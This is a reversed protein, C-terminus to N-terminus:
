CMPGKGRCPDGEPGYPGDPDIGYSNPEKKGEGDSPRKDGKERKIPTFSEYHDDTYYLEGNKGKVVRQKGRDASGPTKVTYEKYYGPDKEPLKGERNNFEQGDQEHPFPGDTEILDLAKNLESAIKAYNELKEIDIPAPLEGEDILKADYRLTNTPAIRELAREVKEKFERFSRPFLSEKEKRGDVDVYRNPNNRAYVYANLSQPRVPSGSAPDVSAFRGLESAYYRAFMYDLGTEGDREHGTFMKTNYDFEPTIEEGFPFYKHEAEVGGEDDTVLRSSGLHDVHLDLIRYPPGGSSQGLTVLPAALADSTSSLAPSDSSAMLISTAELSEHDLTRCVPYDVLDHPVTDTKDTGPVVRSYLPETSGELRCHAFVLNSKPSEGHANNATVYYIELVGDQSQCAAPWQSHENSWQGPCYEEWGPYSFMARDGDETYSCTGGNCEASPHEHSRYFYIYRDHFFKLRYVYYSDAGGVEDWELTTACYANAAPTGISAWLNTPAPPTAQSSCAGPVDDPDDTPVTRLASPPSENGDEDVAIIRFVICEEGATVPSYNYVMNVWLGKLDFRTEWWALPHSTVREWPGGQSGAVEVHYGALDNEANPHWHVFAFYSPTGYAGVFGGDYNAFGRWRWGVYNTYQTACLGCHGNAMAAAGFIECPLANLLMPAAPAGEASSTGKSIASIRDVEPTEDHCDPYYGHYGLRGKTAWHVDGGQWCQTHENNPPFQSEYWGNQRLDVYLSKSVQGEVGELSIPRVAYEWCGGFGGIAEDTFTSATLPSDTLRVWQHICQPIQLNAESSTISGECFDWRCRRYVHYGALRSEHVKSWELNVFRSRRNDSDFEYASHMARIARVNAAPDFPDEAQIQNSAPSEEASAPFYEVIYYTYPSDGDSPDWHTQDGSSGTLVEAVLMAYSQAATRYIRYRTFPSASWSVQVGIADDDEIEPDCGNTGYQQNYPGTSTTGGDDVAFVASGLTPPTVNKRPKASAPDSWASINGSTDVARVRYSYSLGAAVPADSAQLAQIPSFVVEPNGERKVEYYAVDPELVEEWYVDISEAVLAPAAVVNQPRAPAVNDRPVLIDTYQWGSAHGITDVTRVRYQYNLGNSLGTDVFETGSVPTAVVQVYAGPVEGQQWPGVREVLFGALDELEVANWSIRAARDWAEGVVNSPVPPPTPDFPYVVLAASLSSENAAEDVAKVRYEIRTQPDNAAVGFNDLVSTSPAAVYTSSTQQPNSISREVWYNKIDPEAVAHWNVTLRTGNLNTAWPRSPSSPIENKLLTLAQGLAYIYDKDWEPPDETGAARRYESLVRGADDRFYYTEVGDVVSRVRYGSSDYSYAATLDTAADWVATMRNQANFIFQRSGDSSLNGSGDYVFANNASGIQQTVLRNTMRNVTFVRTEQYGTTNLDRMLMNGFADYSYDLQYTAQGHGVIARKLRSLEDYFFSDSGIGKVNGAGDYSYPGITQYPVVTPTTPPCYQLEIPQGGGGGGNCGFVSSLPERNEPPQSPGYVTFQTPRGQADRSISNSFGNGRQFSVPAGHAGYNVDALYQFDRGADHLEYLFGNAYLGQVTSREDTSGPVQPYATLMETGYPDYCHDTQLEADWPYLKTKTWTLRGNLGAYALSGPLAQACPPSATGFGWHRVAVDRLVDDVLQRSIRKTLHGLASAPNLVSGPEYSDYTNQEVVLGGPELTMTLLRGADDFANVFENGRADRYRVLEGRADYSLYEVTGNEPNTAVRLRGLSDYEFRRMQTEVGDIEGQPDTLHVDTLNDREDYVYTADAGLGPSDVSVLRGLADNTYVTTADGAGGTGEIGYTTVATTLGDYTTEVISGDPHTIRSVRGLPDIYLGEFTTYEYVTWALSEDTTGLPSWESQRLLRGAIDFEMKRFDYAGDANRREERIVRGLADYSYRTETFDSATREQRVTTHFIDPYDIAIEAEPSPPSITMLRGLDDWEYLTEEGSPARSSLTRGSPVDLTRDAANWAFDAYRATRQVTSNFEYRDYHEVFSSDDDGGTRTVETLHGTLPDVDRELYVDDSASCSADVEPTACARSTGIQTWYFTTDTRSILEGLGDFVKVWDYAAPYGSGGQYHTETTQYLDGAVYTRQRRPLPRVSYYPSGNYEHIWDDYEVRYAVPASGAGFTEVEVAAQRANIPTSNPDPSPGGSKLQVMEEDYDYEYSERRALRALNEEPGAYTEVSYLLGDTWHTPCGFNDCTAGTSSPAPCTVDWNSIGGYGNTQMIECYPAGPAYYVSRHFRYITLNNFPDLVRVRQPNSGHYHLGDLYDELDEETRVVGDGFRMYSWTYPSDADSPLSLQKLVLESHYPQDLSTKYHRFHYDIVASTPLTWRRLYGFRVGAPCQNIDGCSSYDFRHTETMEDLSPLVLESLVTVNKTFVDEGVPDYYPDYIQLTSYRLIYDATGGNTTPLSITIGGSSPVFNITRSASDTITQVRNSPLVYTIDVWQQPEPPQTGERTAMTEIRTAYWGGDPNSANYTGGNWTFHIRTGDGPLAVWGGGIKPQVLISSSDFTLNDVECLTGNNDHCFFHEAGDATQLRYIHDLDKPDHYVRGFHLLFGLGNTDPAMLDGPCPENAGAFPDCDHRWLKTNYFLQIQYGFSDNLEFWPGIPFRLNLNGNMVDVNEGNLASEFVHNSSFGIKTNEIEARLEGVAGCLALSTVVVGLWSRASGINRHLVQSM